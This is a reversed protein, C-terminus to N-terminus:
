KVQQAVTKPTSASAEEIIRLLSEVSDHGAFDAVKRLQTELETIRDEAEQLQRMEDEQVVKLHFKSFGALRDYDDENWGRGGQSNPPCTSCKILDEGYERYLTRSGCGHCPMPYHKRQDRKRAGFYGRVYDHLEWLKIAIDVGSLQIYRHGHGDLENGDRDLGVYKGEGVKRYETPKEGKVEGSRDWLLAWDAPSDLLTPINPTLIKVAAAVHGEQNKPPTYTPREDEGWSTHACIMEAALDLLELLEVQKSEAQVNVLVGPDTTYSVKEVQDSERMRILLSLADWDDDIHGLIRSVHRTCRECLRGEAGVLAPHKGGQNDLETGL